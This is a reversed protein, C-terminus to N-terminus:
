KKSRDAAQQEVHLNNTVSFIGPLMKAQTEAIQSDTKNLVAGELTVHGNNVIIHISPIAQLQYRQLSPQGYIARYLALRIQNDSQYVPLVDIKNDVQEVGEIGKVAKEANNKTVIQTVQGLLTVKSGDVKYQLNDFVGYQPIMVLEHGVERAIRAQAEPSTTAGPARTELKPKNQQPAAKSSSQALLAGPLIAGFVAVRFISNTM